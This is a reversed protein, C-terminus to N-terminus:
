IGNTRVFMLPGIQFVLRSWLGMPNDKDKLSAPYYTCCVGWSHWDIFFRWRAGNLDFDM